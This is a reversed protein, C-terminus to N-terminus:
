TAMFTISAVMAAMGAPVAKGDGIRGGGDRRCPAGDGGGPLRRRRWGPDGDRGIAVIDASAATFRDGINRRLPPTSV